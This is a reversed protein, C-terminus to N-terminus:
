YFRINRVIICKKIIFNEYYFDDRESEEELMFVWIRQREEFGINRWFFIGWVFRRERMEEVEERRDAVRYARACQPSSGGGTVTCIWARSLVDRQHSVVSHEVRMMRASDVFEDMWGRAMGKQKSCFVLRNGGIIATGEGPKRRKEQPFFFSTEISKEREGGKGLREYLHFPSPPLSTALFQSLLTPNIVPHRARSQAVNISIEDLAPVRTNKRKGKKRPSLWLNERLWFWLSICFYEYVLKM